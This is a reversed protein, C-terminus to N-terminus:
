GGSGGSTSAGNRRSVRRCDRHPSPSPPAPVLDAGGATTEELRNWAELRQDFKVAPEFLAAQVPCGRHGQGLLSTRASRLKEPM